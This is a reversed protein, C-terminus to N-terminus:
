FADMVWQIAANERLVLTTSKTSLLLVVADFIQSPSGLLQGDAKIAKGDSLHASALSLVNARVLNRAM